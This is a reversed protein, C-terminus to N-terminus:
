QSEEWKGIARLYAEAQQDPKATAILFAQPFGIFHDHYQSDKPVAINYLYSAFVMSLSEPLKAIASHIANLDDLYDPINKISGDWMRHGVVLSDQTWGDRFNKSEVAIAIRQKEPTM